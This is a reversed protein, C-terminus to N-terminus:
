DVKKRMGDVSDEIVEVADDALDEAGDTAREITKKVPREVNHHWGVAKRAEHCIDSFIGDGGAIGFIFMALIGFVVGISFRKM